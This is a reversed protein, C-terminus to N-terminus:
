NLCTGKQECWKMLKLIFEETRHFVTHKELTIQQAKLARREAEEGNLLIEEFLCYYEEPNEAVFFSDPGFRSDLLKPHDVLQPIGCAALIYTRENLESAWQIQNEIHLNIGVKSRAYIYRDRDCWFHDSNSFGWGPGDVFGPYAQLIKGLFSFYRPIKAPNRSALFAFNLDRKINPIPYHLLPNAGFELSFIDYGEDFFEKYDTRETIYDQCRFTHYFDVHHEKAWRLRGSLATNGDEELEASLGIKLTNKRRYRLVEEWNIRELFLRYDCTMLVNPKFDELWREVNEDWGLFRAEIGMFTSAIVFNNFASHVGPSVRWAPLHVLIRLPNLNTYKGAFEMKVSEILEFGQKVLASSSGQYCERGEMESKRELCRDSWRTVEGNLRATEPHIRKEFLRFAWMPDPRQILIKLCHKIIVSIQEFVSWM